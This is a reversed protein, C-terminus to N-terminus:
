ASEDAQERARARYAAVKARNGCGLATCYRRGHGKTRDYFWLVCRESACRRVLDFDGNALLDAVSEAVPALFEEPTMGHYVRTFELKSASHAVLIGHSTSSRLIANLVTLSPRRGAKKAEIARLAARRLRRATDVLAGAHWAAPRPSVAVEALRLWIKVDNDRQLTDTLEGGIMRATNVFDIALHDGIFDLKHAQKSTRVPTTRV